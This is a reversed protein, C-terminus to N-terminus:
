VFLSINQKKVEVFLCKSMKTIDSVYINIFRGGRYPWTFKLTQM